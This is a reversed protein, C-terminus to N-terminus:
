SIVNIRNNIKRQDAFSNRLRRRTYVHKKCGKSPKIKSLQMCNKYSYICLINHDLKNHKACVISNTHRVDLQPKVRRM